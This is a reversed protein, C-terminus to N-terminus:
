GSAPASRLHVTAARGTPTSRSVTRRPGTSATRARSVADCNDPLRANIFNYSCFEDIEDVLATPGVAVDGSFPLDLVLIVFLSLAILSALISVMAAQSAFSELSFFYCFGITLAGGALLVIWLPTPLESQSQDVRERRSVNAQSIDDVAHRVFEGQTANTAKLQTVAKWVANLAGATRPDEAHHKAVYPWEVFALQHAYRSVALRTQRGQPGIAVADRYLNGIAGAETAADNSAATYQEWQIVVVFALLVAYIVGVVAILFGAVDHQSVIKDHELLRRAIVFGGIATGIAVVVFGIGLVATPVNTVLWKEM